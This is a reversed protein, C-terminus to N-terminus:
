ASNVPATGSPAPATNPRQIESRALFWLGVVLLMPGFPFVVNRQAPIGHPHGTDALVKNVGQEIAADMKQQTEADYNPAQHAGIARNISPMALLSFACLAFYAAVVLYGWKRCRRFAWLGIALGSLYVIPTLWDIAQTTYYLIWDRTTM